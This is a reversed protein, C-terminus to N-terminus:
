GPLVEPSLLRVMLLGQKERSETEALARKAVAAAADTFRQARLLLNAVSRTDVTTSLYRRLSHFAEPTFKSVVTGQFTSQAAAIDASSSSSLLCHREYEMLTSFIFEADRAATLFTLVM